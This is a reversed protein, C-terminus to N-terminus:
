YSAIDGLYGRVSREMEELTDGGFKERYACGLVWAMMAEAVVGVAPVVCVDSREVIAPAAEKTDIDVSPLPRTLTPIPKVYGRVVIAEGNTMGGEVGGARNGSRRWSGERYEIADQSTSGREGAVEVGDGISVGKVSPVSLIAAGIATDIRRDWQAYSGLGPVVGKVVVEFIGGLTDGAEKAADIERQMRASADPDSCRVPDQEIAEIQAPGLPLDRRATVPGIAVVRSVITVGFEAVLLRAAAGAACRAATERASARELVNRLDRHHYKMGGALDAHGPRPRTVPPESDSGVISLRQEWNPRDRNVIVMTVPGGTTIGHRMGSTFEVQDWEIGMRAGRGYGHRRRTLDADVKESDIVLGSPLGDVIVTLNPGHSEGATLYRLM